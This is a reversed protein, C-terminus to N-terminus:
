CANRVWSRSYTETLGVASEQDGVVRRSWDVVEVHDALHGQGTFAIRYRIITEGFQVAHDDDRLFWAPVASRRSASAAPSETDAASSSVRMSATSGASGTNMM